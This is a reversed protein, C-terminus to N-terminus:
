LSNMGLLISLTVIMGAITVGIAVALISKFKPMEFPVTLLSGTWAGTLPLPIAVFAIIAFFGYREIKKRNKEKRTQSFREVFRGISPFREKVWPLISDFFMIIAIAPVMNSIISAITVLAPNMHYALIGLLIAGRLESIPAM